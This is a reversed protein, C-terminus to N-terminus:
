FSKFIDFHWSGQPHVKVEPKRAHPWGTKAIRRVDAAQGEHIMFDFRGGYEYDFEGRKGAFLKARTKEKSDQFSLLASVISQWLISKEWTKLTCTKKNKQTNKLYCDLSIVESTHLTKCGMEKYNQTELVKPTRSIVSPFHRVAHVVRVHNLHWM